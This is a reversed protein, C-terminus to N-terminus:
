SGLHRKSGLLIKFAKRFGQDRCTYVIPNMLSNSIGLLTTVDLLSVLWAPSNDLDYLALCVLLYPGWSLYFIGLILAMTKVVRCEIKQGINTSAAEAVIRRTQKRAIYGIIGYLTVLLITCIGFMIMNTISVTKNNVFIEIGCKGKVRVAPLILPWTSFFIASVWGWVSLLVAGRATMCNQYFFPKAIYITRDLAILLLSSISAFFPIAGVYIFIYCYTTRRQLYTLAYLIPTSMIGAMIDAVALNAIFINPVTRLYEFKVVSAIVLSNGFVIGLVMPIPIIHFIMETGMAM